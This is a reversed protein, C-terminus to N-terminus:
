NQLHNATKTGQGITNPVSNAVAFDVAKPVFNASAIKDKKPVPIAGSKTLQPRGGIQCIGHLEM